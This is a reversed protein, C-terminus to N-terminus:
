KEQIEKSLELIRNIFKEYYERLEEDQILALNQAIVEKERESNLVPLNHEKKYKGIEKSVHMRKEFLEAMERDYCNIKKRLKELRDM